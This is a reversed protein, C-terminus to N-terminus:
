FISLLSILIGFILVFRPAAFRKLFVPVPFIFLLWANVLWIRVELVLFFLRLRRLPPITSATSWLFIALSIGYIYFGYLTFLLFNLDSDRGNKEEKKVNALQQSGRPFTEGQPDLSICIFLPTSWAV